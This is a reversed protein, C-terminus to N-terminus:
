RPTACCRSSRGWGSPREVVLPRIRGEVDGAGDVVSETLLQECPAAALADLDV